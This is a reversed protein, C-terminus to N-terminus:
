LPLGMRRILDGFRPDTHLPDLAPDVKMFMLDQSRPRDQYARELLQFAKNSESLGVYIVALDFASVVKGQQGSELERLVGRAKEQNGAVAYAYALYAKKKTENELNTDTQLKDFEAIAKDYKGLHVYALGLGERARDYKPNIELAKRFQETAKGYQHAELLVFGVGANIIPSLPDLARARELEAIAEGHRGMASMLMGYWQHATSHSPNLEIARKLEAEGGAWDWDHWLQVLALSTHAEALKSDISLAKKANAMAADYNKDPELGSYLVRMTYCDALGAYAPAFGSDEKIAEEFYTIARNLSELERQNWFYRGKLYADYVRPDIKGSRALLARQEPSLKVKTQDALALAVKGQLTLINNVDDNYTRSWLNRNTATDLLEATITVNEGSRFVTGRVVAAVDLKQAVESPKEVSTYRMVSTRSIVRLSGIQGLDGILEDTLGAAIYDQQPDHSVNRFPLLALSEIPRRASPFLRDRLGGVNAGVLVALTAALVGGVPLPRLLWGLSRALRAFTVWPDPKARVARPAVVPIAADAHAAYAAAAAGVPQTLAWRQFLNEYRETSHRLVVTGKSPEAIFGRFLYPKYIAAQISWSFLAAATRPECEAVKGIEDVIMEALDFSKNQNNRIERRAGLVVPTNADLIGDQMLRDLLAAVADTSYLITLPTVGYKVLSRSLPMGDRVAPSGLLEEQEEPNVQPVERLCIGLDRLNEPLGALLSEQFATGVAAEDEALAEFLAEVGEPEEVAAELPQSAGQSIAEYVEGIWLPDVEASTEESFGLSDSEELAMLVEDARARIQQLLDADGKSRLAKELLARTSLAEEPSM